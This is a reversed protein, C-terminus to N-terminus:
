IIEDFWGQKRAEALSEFQTPLTEDYKSHYTNHINDVYRTRYTVGNDVVKNYVVSEFDNYKTLSKSDLIKGDNTYCIEQFTPKNNPNRFNNNVRFTRGGIDFAYGEKNYQNSKGVIFSYGGVDNKVTSYRISTQGNPRSIYTSVTHRKNENLTPMRDQILKQMSGRIEGNKVKVYTKELTGNPLSEIKRYVQAGDKMVGKIAKYGSQILRLDM